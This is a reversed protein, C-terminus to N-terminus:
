PAPLTSRWASRCCACGEDRGFPSASASSTPRGPACLAPGHQRAAPRPVEIIWLRWFRRTDVLSGERRTVEVVSADIDLRFNMAYSDFVGRFNAAMDELDFRETSIVPAGIHRLNYAEFIENAIGLATAGM